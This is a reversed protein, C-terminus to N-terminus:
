RSGVIQVVTLAIPLLLTTAARGIFGFSFPAPETADIIERLRLALDLRTLDRQIIEVSDRDPETVAGAVEEITVTLERLARDQSARSVQYLSWVPVSFVTVGGLLLLVLFVGVIVRSTRTLEPLVGLMAPAFLAGCSFYLGHVWAFTYLQRIGWAREARFATWRLRADRTAAHILAIVKSIGWIGAASCVGVAGIVVLGAIRHLTSQVPILANLPGFSLALALMPALGVPLVLLYFARDWRRIRAQMAAVNWGADAGHRDFEVLLDELNFEAQQMLLPSITIWLAATPIAWLLTPPQSDLRDVVATTYWWWFLATPAGAFIAVGTLRQRARSGPDWPMRRPVWTYPSVWTSLRPM